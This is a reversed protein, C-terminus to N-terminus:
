KMVWYWVQGIRKKEARGARCDRNIVNRVTAPTCGTKGAIQATSLTGAEMLAKRILVSAGTQAGGNGSMGTAPPKHRAKVEKADDMMAARMRDQWATCHAYKDPAMGKGAAMM